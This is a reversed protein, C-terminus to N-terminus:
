RPIEAALKINRRGYRPSRRKAHVSKHGSNQFCDNLYTCKAELIHGLWKKLFQKQVQNHNRKSVQVRRLQDKWRRGQGFLQHDQGCDAPTPLREPQFRDDNQDGLFPWVHIIFFCMTGCLNDPGFSRFNHSPDKVLLSTQGYQGPLAGRQIHIRRQGHRIYQLHVPTEARPM